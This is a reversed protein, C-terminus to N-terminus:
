RGTQADLYTALSAVTGRLPDVRWHVTPGADGFAVAHAPYDAASDITMRLADILVADDDSLTAELPASMHLMCRGSETRCAVEFTGGGPLEIACAGTGNLAPDIGSAGVLLDIDTLDASPLSSRLEAFPELAAVMEAHAPGAPYALPDASVADLSRACARALADVWRELQAVTRFTGIDACARLTITGEPGQVGWALDLASGFRANAQLLARATQASGLAADGPRSAQLVLHTGIFAGRVDLGDVVARSGALLRGAVSAPSSAALLDAHAQTAAATLADARQSHDARLSRRDSGPVSPPAYFM